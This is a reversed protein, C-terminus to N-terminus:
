SVSKAFNIAAQKAEQLTEIPKVGCKKYPVDDGCLGDFLMDGIKFGCIARHSWGYWKKDKTSYGISCVSHEPDALEPSIGKRTCLFHAEKSDGIYHGSPNYSVKEMMMEEDNLRWVEDRLIYGSRYRRERVIKVVEVGSAFREMRSATAAAVAFCETKPMSDDDFENSECEVDVDGIAIDDESTGAVIEVAEARDPDFAALCAKGGVIGATYIRASEFGARASLQESLLAAAVELSKEDSCKAVEAAIMPRMTEVAASLGDFFGRSLAATKIKSGDSFYQRIAAVASLRDLGDQAFGVLKDSDVRVMFDTEEGIFKQLSAYQDETPEKSLRAYRDRLRIAGDGRFREETSADSAYNNPGYVGAFSKLVSAEKGHKADGKDVMTGDPLIWAAYEVADTVGYMEKATAFAVRAAVSYNSMWSM